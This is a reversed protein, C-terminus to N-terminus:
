LFFLRSLTKIMQNTFPFRVFLTMKKHNSDVNYILKCIINPKYTNLTPTYLKMCFGIQNKRIADSYKVVIDFQAITTVVNCYM